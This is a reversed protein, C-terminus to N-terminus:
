AKGFIKQLVECCETKNGILEEMDAIADTDRPDYRVPDNSKERIACLLKTQMRVSLLAMDALDNCDSFSFNETYSTGVPNWAWARIHAPIIPYKTVANKTDEPSFVNLYVLDAYFNQMEVSFTDKNHLAAIDHRSRLWEIQEDTIDHTPKRGQTDEGLVDLYKLVEDVASGGSETIWKDPASFASKSQSISDSLLDGFEKRNAAGVSKIEKHTFQTGNINRIM